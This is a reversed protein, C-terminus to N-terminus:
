FIRFKKKFFFFFCKLKKNKRTTSKHSIELPCQTAYWERIPDLTISYLLWLFYLKRSMGIEKKREKGPEGRTDDNIRMANGEVIESVWESVWESDRARKKNNKVFACAATRAAREFHQQLVAALGLVNDKQIQNGRGFANHAHAFIERCDFNNSRVYVLFEIIM